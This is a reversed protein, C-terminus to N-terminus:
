RRKLKDGLKGVVEVAESMIGDIIEKVSPLDDVLGVVQGCSLVADNISGTVYSDRTRSGRLIPLLEELTAGAVGKLGDFRSLLRQATVM